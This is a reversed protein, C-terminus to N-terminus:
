IRNENGFLSHIQIELDRCHLGVSFFKDYTNQPFSFLFVWYTVLVWGLSLVANTQRHDRAVADPDCLCTLKVMTVNELQYDIVLLMSESIIATGNNGSWTVKFQRAM